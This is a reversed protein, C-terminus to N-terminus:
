LDASDALEWIRARPDRTIEAAPGAWLAELRQRFEEAQAATDFDLDIAVATGDDSRLVRYSRVGGGKRDIPDSDFVSKWRQFDPVGHEIRLVHM